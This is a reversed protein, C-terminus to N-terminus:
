LFPLLLMRVFVNKITEFELSLSFKIEVWIPYTLKTYVSMKIEYAGSKGELYDIKVWLWNKSLFGIKLWFVIKSLIM